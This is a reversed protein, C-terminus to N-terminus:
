TTRWAEPDPRYPALHWAARVEPVAAWHLGAVMKLVFVANRVYYLPHDTVLEAHRELTAQSLLFSPVPRYVTLVPSLVFVATGAVVGLWMLWSVEALFRDLYPEPRTDLFGPLGEVRPYLAGLSHLLLTRM